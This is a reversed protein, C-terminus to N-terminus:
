QPVDHTQPRVSAVRVVDRSVQEGTRDPDARADHRRLIVLPGALEVIQPPDTAVRTLAHVLVHERRHAQPQATRRRQGVDGVSGHGYDAGPRRRRVAVVDRRLQRVRQGLSAPANHGASRVADVGLGMAAREGGATARDDDERAADVPGVRHRVRIEEFTDALVTQQERLPRGTGVWMPM